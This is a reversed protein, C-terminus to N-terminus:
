GALEMLALIKAPNWTKSNQRVYLLCETLVQAQSIPDNSVSCHCLHIWTQPPLFHVSVSIAAVHLKCILMLRKM